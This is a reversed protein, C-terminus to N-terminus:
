EGSVRYRLYLEDGDKYISVLNGARFERDRLGAGDIITPLQAGGKLKPALTLFLEDILGAQLFDFNTTAGGEMLLYRVGYKSRLIQVAKTVDVEDGGVRYLAARSILMDRTEGELSKPAFIIAKEPADTFFRNDLPVDGTRTITARWKGPPYVVPGSRLTSAGIIAADAREQLRRMLLQDTPGGVGKATSGPPGILTKGDITSVMNVYIYPRDAPPEPFVLDSYLNEPAITSGSSDFLREILM